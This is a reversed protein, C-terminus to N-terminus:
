RRGARLLGKFGLFGAVVTGVAQLTPDSAATSLVGTTQQRLRASDLIPLSTEGTSELFAEVRQQAEQDGFLAQAADDIGTVGIAAAPADLRIAEAEAQRAQAAANVVGQAGLQAQLSRESLQENGVWQRTRQAVRALRSQGTEMTKAIIATIATPSGFTLNMFTNPDDVANRIFDAEAGSLSAGLDAGLIKGKYLVQLRSTIAALEQGAESARGFGAAGGAVLTAYQAGLELFETLDAQTGTTEIFEASDDTPARIIRGPREPDDFIYKDKGQTKAEDHASVASVRSDLLRQRAAADRDAQDLSLQQIALSAEDAKIDRAEGAVQRAEQQQALNIQQRSSEQVTDHRLQARADNRDSEFASRNMVRQNGAWAIASNVDTNARQVFEVVQNRNLQSGSAGSFEEGALAGLDGRMFADRKKINTQLTAQVRQSRSLAGILSGGALVGLPVLGNAM